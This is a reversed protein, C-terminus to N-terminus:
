EIQDFHALLVRLLRGILHFWRNDLSAPLATGDFFTIPFLSCVFTIYVPVYLSNLTNEIKM